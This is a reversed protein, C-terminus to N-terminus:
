MPVEEGVYHHGGVCGWMDLTERLLPLPQILIMGLSVLPGIATMGDQSICTPVAILPVVAEAGVKARTEDGALWCGLDMNLIRLNRHTTSHHRFRMIM